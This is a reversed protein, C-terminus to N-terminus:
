HRPSIMMPTVRESQSRRRSGPNNQDRLQFRSLMQKLQMAQSSLEEAAAASQEASATNAQTVGDIHALSQNVQEIGEAQENSASASENILDDVKGVGEVIENLARATNNAISTGNEVKKVSGEILETTERPLGVLVKKYRKSFSQM